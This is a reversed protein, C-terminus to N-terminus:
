LTGNDSANLAAVRQAETLNKVSELSQDVAHQLIAVAAVQDTGISAQGVDAKGWLAMDVNNGLATLFAALNNEVAAVVDAALTLDQNDTAVNVKLEM